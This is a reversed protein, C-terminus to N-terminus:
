EGDPPTVPAARALAGVEAVVSAAYRGPDDLADRDTNVCLVIRDGSTSFLHRIRDGDVVPLVGFASRLPAGDFAPRGAPEPLNSVMTNRLTRAAGSTGSARRARARLALLWAPASDMRSRAQRVEPAMWRAKEASASVAVAALREAPDAIDTRLDVTGLALQNASSADLGRAAGSATDILRLSIPVLASLSEGPLEGADALLRRLAGGVASLLVDNVTAGPVAARAARVEAIPIEGIGFVPTGSLPANFRTVPRDRSPPASHDVGDQPANGQPPPIVDGTDRGRTSHLGRAFRIAQLPAGLAARVATEAPHAPAPVSGDGQAGAPSFLGAELARMGMGDVACHHAKVVIATVAGTGHAYRAGTVAHLEWPPRRLDLPEAAIGAIIDRLVPWPGEARHLHVHETLDVRDVPVWVPLDLDCPALRVKRTLFPAAGLRAHMWARLAETSRCSPTTSPADFVYCAVLMERHGPRDDYLYAADRPSLPAFYGTLGRKM